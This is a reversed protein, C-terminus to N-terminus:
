INEESTGIWAATYALDIQQPGQPVELPVRASETVRPICTDAIYDGVQYQVIARSRVLVTAWFTIGDTTLTLVSGEFEEDTTSEIDNPDVQTNWSLVVGPNDSIVGLIFEFHNRGPLEGNEEDFESPNPETM